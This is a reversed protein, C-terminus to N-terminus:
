KKLIWQILCDIEVISWSHPHRDGNARYGNNKTPIYEVHTFGDNILSESLKKILYANTQNYDAMRNKKWWITDPETYLRIKIDKLNKINNHNDTSLTFVSHKEYNALDTNPNGFNHGLENIIWSSENVSIESFNRELNKESSFYLQALDIPSDIIFIGKPVINHINKELLYNGLHLSVLGGSSFGGFHINDNPLKHKDFIENIQNSLNTLENETFWLKQNYNSYVVAIKNRKADELIRFERRIDESDEPYGGFLVLVAESKISPQELEYETTKYTSYNVKDHQRVDLKNKTDYCSLILLTNFFLMIIRKM